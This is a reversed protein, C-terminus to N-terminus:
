IARYVRLLARICEIYLYTFTYSYIYSYIHICIYIYIYIYIHTHTYIGRGRAEECLSYLFAVVKKRDAKQTLKHYL